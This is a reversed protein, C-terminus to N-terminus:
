AVPHLTWRGESSRAEGQEELWLLHALVQVAAFGHMADPLAPYVEPVLDIPAATPRSQLAVRIQDTRAHRHAIYEDLISPPLPDGHSPLLVSPSWARAAELSALYHALSGERPDIIITSIGAVLDGAVVTGTEPHHLVVHGPAHGPTHRVVWSVGSADLVDGDALTEDVALDVLPVTAPHAVIPVPQGIAELRERLDDAGSVHDLHHHTLVIREVRAGEAIRAQLAEFLLARQDPYPSAPDVVTLAENGLCWVNTHTAPPLTPTRVPIRDVLSADPIM